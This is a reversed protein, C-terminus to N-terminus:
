NLKYKNIFLIEDGCINNEFRCGFKNRFYDRAIVRANVVMCEVRPHCLFNSFHAKQTEYHKIFVNLAEDDAWKRKFTRLRLPMDLTDMTYRLQWLLQGGRHYISRASLTLLSEPTKCLSSPYYMLLRQMLWSMHFMRNNKFSVIQDNMAMESQYHVYQGNKQLEYLFSLIQVFYNYLYEFFNIGKLVVLVNSNKYFNENRILKHINSYEHLLINFAHHSYMIDHHFHFKFDFLEKRPYVFKDTYYNCIEIKKEEIYKKLANRYVQKKLYNSAASLTDWRDYSEILKLLYYQWCSWRCYLVAM